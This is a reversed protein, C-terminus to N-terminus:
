CQEVLRFGTRVQGFQLADGDKLRVSEGVNLRKGNLYTGNSSPQEEFVYYGDERSDITAHHRSLTRHEDIPSFDIDPLNGSAEDLRGLYTEGNLAIKFERGSPDHILLAQMPNPDTTSASNPEPLPTPEIPQPQRELNNSEIASQAGPLSTDEKAANGTEQPSSYRQNEQDQRIARAMQRLMALGIEPRNMVMEEFISEEIKLLVFESRGRASAQRPGNELLAVEGFFEGPYFINLLQDRGDIKKVLEVEGVEIIYMESADDGERYVYDGPEGTVRYAALEDSSLDKRLQVM